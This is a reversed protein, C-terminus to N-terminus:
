QLVIKNSIRLLDKYPLSKIETSELSSIAQNALLDAEENGTIGTHSPVWM